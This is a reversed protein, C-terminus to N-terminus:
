GGNVWALALVAFAILALWLTANLSLGLFLPWNLAPGRRPLSAQHYAM